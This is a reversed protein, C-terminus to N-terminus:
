PENPPNMPPGTTVTPGVVPWAYPDIVTQRTTVADATIDFTTLDQAITVPGDYRTRMEAYVPGVTEHDVALHWMVSMRAGARKFVGGAAAPSTHVGNVIQEAFALPVNAKQAYIGASPFTEHILLDVGDAADVLPRCPRTDGSFVVSLGNFDLRYGVSGNLIHIVPFSSIQVGNREYVTSTSDFPVENVEMRAGSQGPHGNLSAMDWAHAAQLQTAYARTGLEPRDGGPGWVEVPDRRGAKALSWVLTPMDGVHDAHLHTLFVKTTATVPLQLGNFNALSGSGLDFFFFDRQPNGVEMLVSASAQAKKTFPDGSGLITVRIAGDAVRDSVPHVTEAMSAAAHGVTPTPTLPHASGEYALETLQTIETMAPDEQHTAGHAGEYRSSGAVTDAM